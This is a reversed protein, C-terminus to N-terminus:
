EHEMITLISESGKMAFNNLKKLLQSSNHFGCYYIKAIIICQLVCFLYINEDRFTKVEVPAHFYVLSILNYFYVKSTSVQDIIPHVFLQNSKYSIM